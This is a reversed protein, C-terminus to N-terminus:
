LLEVTENPSAWGWLRLEVGRQLVVGDSILRPLKVQSVLETAQFCLLIILLIKLRNM